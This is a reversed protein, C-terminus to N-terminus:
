SKFKVNIKNKNNNNNKGFKKTTVKEFKFFKPKNTNQSMGVLVPCKKQNEVFKAHRLTQRCKWIELVHNRVYKNQFVDLIIKHILSKKLLKWIQCHFNALSFKLLEGEVLDCALTLLVSENVKISTQTGYKSFTQSAEKPVVFLVLVFLGPTSYSNTSLFICM